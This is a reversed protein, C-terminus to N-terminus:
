LSIQAQAPPRPAASGCLSAYLSEVREVVASLSLQARQRGRAARVLSSALTRDLLLREVAAAFAEPDRRPVLLGEVGDDIIEPVGGVRTAVIPKGAAMYEMVSLPMGEYDSSLCAVDFAALVDAIDNRRGILHVRGALGLSAAFEELRRRNGVGADDGAVVLHPDALRHELVGLARILVDLRKQERLVAVAGLVQADARIGLEARVDAGSSPEPLPPIGNTVVHIRQAPIREVEIMKRRDELSVCVMATAGRSVIFRDTLVRVPQGEYSWTHEHAVITPTRALRGALVGVLNADWLHAHLIDIRERRLLRAIAPIVRLDRISEFGLPFYRVGAARLESERTPTKPNKIACFLSDFRDRDLAMAIDVAVREAGGMVSPNHLLTLVRCRGQQKKEPM